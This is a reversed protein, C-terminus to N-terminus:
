TFDSSLVGPSLVVALASVILLAVYAWAHTVDPIRPPHRRLWVVIPLAGILLAAASRVDVAGIVYPDDAAASTGTLFVALAPASIALTLPNALATAMSMPQGSRRLLPVTMVSGGVGLFSALAGIPVGLLPSIAFEPPFGEIRNPRRLFGPRALVDTITVALYLVFGWMALHPPALRALGAGLVGGCGLVAILAAASRLHALVVRSTAVTATAANVVMVVASTAVAVEATGAALASDAWLIVPVTIFGGGFGFLVTTLGALIGIVVLVIM